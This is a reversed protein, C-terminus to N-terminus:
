RLVRLIDRTEDWTQRRIDLVGTAVDVEFVVVVQWFHADRGGGLVERVDDFLDVIFSFKGWLMRDVVFVQHRRWSPGFVQFHLAFVVEADIDLFMSVLFPHERHCFFRNRLCDLVEIARPQALAFGACVEASVLVPGGFDKVATLGAVDAAGNIPVLVRM